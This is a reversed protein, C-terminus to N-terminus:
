EKLREELAKQAAKSCLNDIILPLDKVEAENVKAVEEIEIDDVRDIITDWSLGCEPDHNEFLDTLIETAKGPTVKIDRNQGVEIVDEATWVLAIKDSWYERLSSVAQEEQDRSILGDKLLHQVMEKITHDYM